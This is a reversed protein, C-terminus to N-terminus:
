SLNKIDGTIKKKKKELNQKNHYIFYLGILIITEFLAGVGMLIIPSDSINSGHIIYFIYGISQILLSNVSLDDSKKTKYLKHIQPLKYILTIGSAIWGYITKM